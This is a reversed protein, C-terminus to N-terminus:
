KAKVIAKKDKFCMSYKYITKVKENVLDLYYKKNEIQNLGVSVENEMDGDTIKLEIIMGLSYDKKKIMIDFRGLWSERNSRVIFDKSDLFLSFLGLLYGHYFSEQTDMYSINPLTKNLSTQILDM